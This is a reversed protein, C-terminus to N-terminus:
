ERVKISKKQVFGYIKTAILESLTSPLEESGSKITYGFREFIYNKLHEAEHAILGHTLYHTGFLVYYQYIDDDPSFCAGDFHDTDDGYSESHKKYLKKLISVLKDYGEDTFIVSINAGFADVKFSLTTRM